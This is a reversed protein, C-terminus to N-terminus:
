AFAAAFKSCLLLKTDIKTGFRNSINFIINIKAYSLRCRLLKFCVENCETQVIMAYSLRCEAIRFCVKMAGTQTFM